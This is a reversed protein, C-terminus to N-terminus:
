KLIIKETYNFDATNVKLVYIGKQLSSLNISKEVSFHDENQSFVIRGNIDVVQLNVKGVYQSVRVNVIGTAPNPYVRLTNEKTFNSTALLPFPTFDETQDNCDNASGSSANLGMGRRRFVEAILNHDVGGTAMDAAFLNDRASIISATNCAQLKLADLVLQMVKNNGGTGTYINADFGYRNIYAWSLDWLVSTWTEGVVYRYGTDAPDTPIPSNSNVLTRPNITMDTSYPYERIGAGDNPENYVYTGVTVPNTGVDTSKIQMMLGFWDSWGEGMQEYNTMCSSNTIPGILKTSIGHGYEHSIITNDFDGDAYLYLDAPAELKLNVTGLALQDVFQQGIEATVFVAPITIGLLGESSMSLRQPNAVVTDYVIVALAGADQANKVKNSFNCNGRRILAIKGAIDLSNTPVVCANHASVPNSNPNPANTYLVLDSTIGNPATPVPIRDTTDFVNTTAAYAGAIAAPSNVTIFNTPPAGANWLFMQVRPRGGDNPTSFNANNLTPTTQSYGDQADGFVADGTASVTGGKGYNNQQFNGSAENFGYQYWVDHMINVMYFLNTVSASTYATPQQWPGLFPFDFNLDAGGDARIGNGNNGDADEQALVNNGRTYTFRLAASTGGITSNTDHWGNPSAVTNAPSSILQFPSHSPSTYNYPIVKYSGAQAEVVSSTTNNFANKTFSFDGSHDHNHAGGHRLEGFSCRVTLDNKELINGNLADIRLDWLESSGPAYFQLAWALMLNNDKTIQYVLKATILDEQLGDNLMMSKANTTESVSFVPLGVIGVKAYASKAADIATLRPTVSNAKGAINSKFNNVVNTVNGDKVWVNSIANFIEIGQYRQAVHVSTIKTTESYNEGAIAWDSVDQKLLGMKAYNSNFYAQIKQAKDQSFGTLSVLFVILLTIKKMIKSKQHVFM